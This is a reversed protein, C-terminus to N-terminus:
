NRENLLLPLARAICPALRGSHPEYRPNLRADYATFGEHMLRVQLSQPRGRLTFGVLQNSRWTFRLEEGECATKAGFRDREHSADVVEIRCTVAHGDVTLGLVYKGVDLPPYFPRKSPNLFELRLVDECPAPGHARYASWAGMGVLVSATVSLFV